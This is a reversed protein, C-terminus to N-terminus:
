QVVVAAVSGNQAKAKALDLTTWAQDKWLGPVAQRTFTQSGGAVPHSGAFALGDVEGGQAKAAALSIWTLDLWYGPVRQFRRIGGSPQGIQESRYGAAVLTTGSFGLGRVGSDGLTKLPNLAIWERNQWYGAVLWGQPSQYSGGAYVDSGSFAFCTVQASGSPVPLPLGVWVGNRWYGPLATGDAKMQFGGAYLADGSQALVLVESLLGGAPGLPVWAGDM